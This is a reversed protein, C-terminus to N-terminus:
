EFCVKEVMDKTEVLRSMVPHDEVSLGEAKLLLYFTIAQSYALLCAKKVVLPQMKGNSNDLDAAM